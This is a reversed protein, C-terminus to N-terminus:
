TFIFNPTAEPNDLVNDIELSHITNETYDTTELMVTDEDTKERTNIIKYWICDQEPETKSVVITDHIKEEIETKLKKIDEKTAYFDSTPNVEVNIEDSIVINFKIKRENFKLKNPIYDSYEGSNGYWLLIEEKTDPEEAFIGIERWNFGEELNGNNIIVTIQTIGNDIIEIDEVQIDDMKTDILQTLEKPNRGNLPGDGLQIKTIKLKKEIECKTKLQLGVNTFMLSDFASM